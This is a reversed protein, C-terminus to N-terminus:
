CLCGCSQLKGDLDVSIDDLSRGAFENIRGKEMLLLIKSVKAMQLTNEPLRYFNRHVSIDHGMFGALLDIENNRLGLVQSMTAVHKRLKTSTIHEPHAVQSEIVFHKLCDSARLPTRGSVRAFLFKNSRDIGVEARKSVLFELNSTM